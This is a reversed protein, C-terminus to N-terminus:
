PRLRSIKVVRKRVLRRTAPEIHLEGDGVPLEADALVALHERAIGSADHSARLVSAHREDQSKAAGSFHYIGIIDGSRVDYTYLTAQHHPGDGPGPGTGIRM